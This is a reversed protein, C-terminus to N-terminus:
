TAEEGGFLNAVKARAKRRTANPSAVHAFHWCGCLAASEAATAVAFNRAKASEWHCYSRAHVPSVGWGPPLRESTFHCIMDCSQSKSPWLKRRPRQIGGSVM